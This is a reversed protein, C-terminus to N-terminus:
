KGNANDIYVNYLEEVRKANDWISYGKLCITKRSEVALRERDIGKTHAKNLKQAYHEEDLYDEFEVLGTIDAEISVQTSAVCPLGTSQAEILVLPVGEFKSPLALVDFAMMYKHIEDTNGVFIVNDQLNNSIVLKKIVEKNEGDGVLMLVSNKNKEYLKIFIKILAEHNKQENFVGVHGVVFKNNVGYINRIENRYESNFKFCETDIGNNIVIYDREGYLWKGAEKGCAFGYSYNNYFMPKLVKHIIPHNTKTNHCHPIRVKVGASKAVILEIAMTASNGHIHVLDYNNEKMIAKLSSMYGFLNKTRDVVYLKTNNNDFLQKVEERPENILVMDMHIKEKDISKYYNLIVNAIGNYGFVNSCIVLINKM